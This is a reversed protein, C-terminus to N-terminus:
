RTGLGLAVGGRGTIEGRALATTPDRVPLNGCNGVHKYSSPVAPVSLLFPLSLVM